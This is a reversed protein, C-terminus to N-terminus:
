AMIICCVGTDDQYGCHYNVSTAILRPPVQSAEASTCGIPATSHAAYFSGDAETGPVDGIPLPRALQEPSASTLNSRRNPIWSAPDPVRSIHSCGTVGAQRGTTPM